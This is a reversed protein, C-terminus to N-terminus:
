CPSLGLNRDNCLSVCNKTLWFSVSDVDPHLYSNLPLLLLSLLDPFPLLTMVSRYMIYEDLSVFDNKRLINCTLLLQTLSTGEECWLASAGASIFKERTDGRSERDGKIFKELHFISFSNLCCFFFRCTLCPSVVPLIFFFFDPFSFYM